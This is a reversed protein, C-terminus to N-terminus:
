GGQALLFTSGPYRGKEVYSQMWDDIRLLRDKDFSYATM